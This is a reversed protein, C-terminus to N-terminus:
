PRVREFFCLSLPDYTLALISTRRVGGWIVGGGTGRDALIGGGGALSALECSLLRIFHHISYHIVEDTESM